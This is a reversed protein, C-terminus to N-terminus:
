PHVKIELICSSNAFNVRHFERTNQFISKFVGLLFIIEHLLLISLANYLM